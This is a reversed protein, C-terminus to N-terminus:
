TRRRRLIVALAGLLAAWAGAGGAGAGCGQASGVDAPGTQTVGGQEVTPTPGRVEDDDSPTDGEPPAEAAADDGPTDSEVPGVDASAAADQDTTGMFGDDTAGADEGSPPVFTAPPGGANASVCDYWGNDADWGCAEGEGCTQVALEGRETCWVVNNGTTCAGEPPVDACATMAKDICGYGGGFAEHKACIEDEPCTATVVAGNSCWQVTQGDLCKGTEPVGMCAGAHAPAAALTLGFALGVGALTKGFNRM